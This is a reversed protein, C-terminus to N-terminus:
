QIERFRGSVVISTVHAFDMKLVVKVMDAVGKVFGPKSQRGKVEVYSLETTPSPILEVALLRSLPTRQFLLLHLTAQFPLATVGELLRM